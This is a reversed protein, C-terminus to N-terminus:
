IIELDTHHAAFLLVGAPKRRRESVSEGFASLLKQLEPHEDEHKLRGGTKTERALNETLAESGWNEIQEKARVRFKMKALLEKVQEEDFLKRNLFLGRYRSTWTSNQKNLLPIHHIHRGALVNM